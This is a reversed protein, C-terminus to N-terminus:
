GMLSAVKGYGDRWIDGLPNSIAGDKTAFLLYPKLAAHEGRLSTIIKEIRAKTTTVFLLQFATFQGWHQYKRTFTGSKLYSQYAALKKYITTNTSTSPDILETGMDMELFFLAELNDKTVLHFAADPIIKKSNKRDLVDTTEKQKSDGQVEYRFDFAANEIKAINIENLASRLSLYFDVIALRHPMIQSWARNPKAHVYAPLELGAIDEFYAHGKQTLHWIKPARGRGPIPMDGAAAVYTYFELRRLIEGAHKPSLGTTKAFQATTLLRLEALCTIGKAIAETVEIHHRWIPKPKTYSNEM